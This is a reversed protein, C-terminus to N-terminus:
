LAELNQNLSTELARPKDTDQDSRKWRASVPLRSLDLDFLEGSSGYVGTRDFSSYTTFSNGKYDDRICVCHLVCCM